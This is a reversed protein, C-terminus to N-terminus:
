GIDRKTLFDIVKTAIVTASKFGSVMKDASYSIEEYTTPGEAQSSEVKNLYVLCSLSLALFGGFAIKSIYRKMIHRSNDHM